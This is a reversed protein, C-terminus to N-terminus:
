ALDLGPRCRTAQQAVASICHPIAAINAAPGRAALMQPIQHAAQRALAIGRLRSNSGHGATRESEGLAIQNAGQLCSQLSMERNRAYPDLGPPAM